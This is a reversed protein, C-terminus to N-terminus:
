RIAVVTRIASAGSRLNAAREQPYPSKTAGGAALDIFHHPTLCDYDSCGVTVILASTPFYVLFGNVLLKQCITVVTLRRTANECCHEGISFGFAGGNLCGKLAGVM